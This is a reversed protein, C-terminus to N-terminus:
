GEQKLMKLVDRAADEERRLAENYKRRAEDSSAGVAVLQEGDYAAWLTKGNTSISEGFMVSSADVKRLTPPRPDPRRPKNRSANGHGHEESM